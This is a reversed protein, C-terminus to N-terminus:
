LQIISISYLQRSHEMCIDVQLDMPCFRGNGTPTTITEQFPPSDKQMIKCTKITIFTALFDSIM